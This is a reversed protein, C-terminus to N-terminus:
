VLKLRQVLQAALETPNDFILRHGANKVVNLDEIFGEVKLDQFLSLYKPDSEGAFWHLKPKLPLLQDPAFEQEALSWHVLADALGERNVTAEERPPEESGLFVPQNNWLTLVEQWPLNLFKDAWEGDIKKRQVKEEVNRLGPHASLLVVEDWLGPKDYAAQLALRGGLSYGMLINRELHRNKQNRNFRKAWEQVSKEKVNPLTSFLDVMQFDVESSQQQIAAKLGHWDQPQGLFGHIAVIRTKFKSPEKNVSRKIM